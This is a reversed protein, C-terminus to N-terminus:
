YSKVEGGGFINVGKIILVNKVDGVVPGRKDDFGGFISTVDVRVDWDNPVVIESGGFMTFVDIVCEQNQIKAGTLDLESGGFISTVKGGMFNDSTIKRKGGGMFTFLDIFNDSVGLNKPFHHRNKITLMLVGIVVFIAPWFMNRVEFPIDFIKPLIFFTGITILILGSRYNQKSLINATGIAILLMQWSIIIHSVSSPIIDLKKAILVAGVIIFIIGVISRKKSKFEHEKEEINM